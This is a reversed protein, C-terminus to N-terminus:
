VGTGSFTNADIWISGGSGGGPARFEAGSQGIGGNATIAGEVDLVGNVQLRVAGGGHGGRRNNIGGGSSGLSQPETLSGYSSGGGLSAGTGGSGGHGAGGGGGNASQGYGAGPGLGDDGSRGQFGRNNVNINGIINMDGLSHLKLFHTHETGFQASHSMTAGSRVVVDDFVPIQSVDIAVDFYGWGSPVEFVDGQIVTTTNIFVRASNGLVLSAGQPYTNDLITFAGYLGNNLLIVSHSDDADFVYITGVAGRQGAGGGREGGYASYSVGSAINPSYLAIRGGSGGGGHNTGTSGHGDGGNATISGSGTIQAATIWISGGSGGGPARFEAGSQGIGGNATIAGEVDLVGNVQLRVAGGGHGGRRNNIGGGSSGLSQPETLSGYLLGGSLHGGFGGFGGHGAGGAGGNAWRGYGAGPGLGNDGSQGQYGRDNVNINGVINMDGGVCGEAVNGRILGDSEITVDGDFRFTFFETPSTQIEGGSAIVLNGEGYVADGDSLEKLTNITCTTELDGEDCFSAVTHSTDLSCDYSFSVSTEEEFAVDDAAHYVVGDIAYVVDLQQVPLQADTITECTITVRQGTNLQRSTMACSIDNVVIDLLQVREQRNNQIVFVSESEGISYSLVAVPKTQLTLLDVSDSSSFGPIGGLVSVVIIAIIIVVASIILYETATQAKAM